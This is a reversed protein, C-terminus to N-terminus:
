FLASGVLTPPVRQSAPYRLGSGGGAADEGSPLPAPPYRASPAVDPRGPDPLRRLLQCAGQHGALGAGTYAALAARLVRLVRLARLTVGPSRQTQPPVTPLVPFVETRNPSRRPQVPQVRDHVISPRRIM